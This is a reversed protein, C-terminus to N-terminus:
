FFENQRLILWTKIDKFGIKLVVRHFLIIEALYGSHYVLRYSQSALLFSYIKIFYSPSETQLSGSNGFDYFSITM